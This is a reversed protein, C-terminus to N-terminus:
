KKHLFTDMKAQDHHSTVMVSELLEVGQRFLESAKNCARQEQNELFFSLADQTAQRADRLSIHRPPEEPEMADEQLEEEASGADVQM